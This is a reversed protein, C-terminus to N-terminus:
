ETQNAKGIQLSAKTSALRHSAFLQLLAHSGVRARIRSVQNSFFGEARISGCTTLLSQFELQLDFNGASHAAGLMRTAIPIAAKPRQQALQRTATIFFQGLRMPDDCMDLALGLETKARTPHKLALATIARYQHTRCPEVMKMFDNPELAENPGFADMYESVSQAWQNNDCLESLLATAVPAQNSRIAASCAYALLEDRPSRERQATSAGHLDAVEVIVDNASRSHLLGGRSEAPDWDHVDSLQDYLEKFLWAKAEESLSPEVLAGVVFKEFNLHTQMSIPEDTEELADQVRSVLEHRRSPPVTVLLQHANNCVFMPDLASLIDPEQGLSRVGEAQDAFESTGEHIKKLDDAYSLGLETRHTPSVSYTNIWVQPTIGLVACGSVVSGLAGIADARLMVHLEDSAKINGGAAGYLLLRAFPGRLRCSALNNRRAAETVYDKAHLHWQSFETSDNEAMAARGLEAFGSLITPMHEINATTAAMDPRELVPRLCDFTYSTGAPISGGEVPRETM